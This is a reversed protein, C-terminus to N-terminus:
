PNTSAVSGSGDIESFDFPLVWDEWFEIVGEPFSPVPVPVSFWIHQPMRRGAADYFHYHPKFGRRLQKASPMDLVPRKDPGLTRALKEATSKTDVIVDEGRRLAKALDDFGLLRGVPKIKMM